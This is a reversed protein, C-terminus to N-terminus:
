YRRSGRQRREDARQRLAETFSAPAVTAGIELLTGFGMSAERASGSLEADLAEWGLERADHDHDGHQMTMGGMVRTTRRKSAVAMRAPSRDATFRDESL